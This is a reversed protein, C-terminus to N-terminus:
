KKAPWGSPAARYASMEQQVTRMEAESNLVRDHKARDGLLYREGGSVLRVGAPLLIQDNERIFAFSSNGFKRVDGLHPQEDRLADMQEDSLGYARQIGYQTEDKNVRHVLRVLEQTMQHAMATKREPTPTVAAPKSSLERAPEPKAAAAQARAAEPRPTNLPPAASLVQTQPPTTSKVQSSQHPSPQHQAQTEYQWQGTLQGQADRVPVVGRRDPMVGRVLSGLSKENGEKGWMITHDSYLGSIFRVRGPEGHAVPVAFRPVGDRVYERVGPSARLLQTQQRTLPRAEPWFQDHWQSDEGKERILAQGNAQVRRVLTGLDAGLQEHKAFVPEGGEFRILRKVWPREGLDSHSYQGYACHARGTAEDKTEYKYVNPMHALVATEQPSLQYPPLGSEDEHPLEVGMARSGIGDITSGM